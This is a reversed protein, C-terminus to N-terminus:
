LKKGKNLNPTKSSWAQAFGVYNVDKLSMLKNEGHLPFRPDTISVQGKLFVNFESNNYEM